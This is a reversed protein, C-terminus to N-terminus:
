IQCVCDSIIFELGSLLLGAQQGSM